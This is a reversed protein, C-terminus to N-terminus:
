KNGNDENKYVTFTYSKDDNSQKERRHSWYKLYEEVDM